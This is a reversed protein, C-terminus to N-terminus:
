GEGPRVHVRLAVIAPALEGWPCQVDFVAIEAKRLNLSADGALWGVLREMGPNHGVLLVREVAPPCDGIAALLTQPAAEYIAPIQVIAAAPVGVAECARRATDLARPAPSALVRSPVLGHQALWRGAAASQREGKATLRRDFDRGGPLADEAKAHRLLVLTSM